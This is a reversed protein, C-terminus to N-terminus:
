EKEVFQGYGDLPESNFPKIKGWLTYLRGGYKELSFLNDYYSIMIGKELVYLTDPYFSIKNDDLIGECNIDQIGQNSSLILKAIHKADRKYVVLKWVYENVSKVASDEFIFTGSWNVKSKIISDNKAVEEVQYIFYEQEKQYNICAYVFFLLYFLVGIIIAYNRQKFKKSYGNKKLGWDFFLKQPWFLVILLLDILSFGEFKRNEFEQQNFSEIEDHIEKKRKHCYQITLGRQEILFSAYEVAEKQWQDKQAFVLYILEDDSYEEFDPFKKM